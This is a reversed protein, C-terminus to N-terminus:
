NESFVKLMKNAKMYANLEDVQKQYKEFIPRLFALQVEDNRSKAIDLVSTGRSTPHILDSEEQLKAFDVFADGKLMLCALHNYNFFINQEIDYIYRKANLDPYVTLIISAVEVDADKLAFFLSKYAPLSHDKTAMVLPDLDFRDFMIWESVPKPSVKITPSQSAVSDVGTPSPEYDFDLLEEIELDDFTRKTPKSSSSSACSFAILLSFIIALLHRSM